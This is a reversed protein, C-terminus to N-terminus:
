QSAALRIVLHPRQSSKDQLPFAVPELHPSQVAFRLDQRFSDDAGRRTHALHSTVGHASDAHAGGRLGCPDRQSRGM